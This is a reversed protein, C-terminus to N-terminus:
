IIIKKSQNEIDKYPPAPVGRWFLRINFQHEQLKKDLNTVHNLDSKFEKSSKSGLLEEIRRINCSRVLEEELNRVQPILVVESVAECAKLLEINKKLINPNGADADFILVVMTDYSLTRLRMETIEQTVVNLKQVKGPRIAALKTKLTDVIKRENEGEVYYLVYKSEREM